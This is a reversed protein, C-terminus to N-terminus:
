DAAEARAADLAAGFAAVDEASTMGGDDALLLRGGRVLAAAHAGVHRSGAEVLSTIEIGGVPCLGASRAAEVSAALQGAGLLGFHVGDFGAGALSPLLARVDGDSHFVAVRGDGAWETAIRRYCPVLAELAFDPSVLWGATGALEDALLLVDAGAELGARAAILAEHLQEALAVALEGPATASLRLVASWGREEAVRTLVGDVIWFAAIGAGHLRAVGEGAWADSSSVAAVDLGLATAVAELAEAENEVGSDWTLARLGSTPVWTMGTAYGSTTGALVDVARYTSV